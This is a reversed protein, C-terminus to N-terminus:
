GLLRRILSFHGESAVLAVVCASSKAIQLFFVHKPEYHNKCVNHNSKRLMRKRELAVHHNMGSFFRETAFLKIVGECLRRIELCVQQNM